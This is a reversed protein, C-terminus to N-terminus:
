SSCTLLDLGGLCPLPPRALRECVAPAEQALLDDLVWYCRGASM